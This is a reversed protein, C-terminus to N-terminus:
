PQIQVEIVKTRATAGSAMRLAHNAVGLEAAMLAILAQNARGGEPVARLKVKWGDDGRSVVEDRSARPIVRVTIRIM